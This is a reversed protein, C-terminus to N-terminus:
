RGRLHLFFYNKQSCTVSNHYMGDTNYSVSIIKEKNPATLLFCCVIFVMQMYSSAVKKRM